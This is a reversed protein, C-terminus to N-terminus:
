QALSIGGLNATKQGLQGGAILIAADRVQGDQRVPTYLADLYLYRCHGLSRARWGQLVEDLQATARSVQSSCVQHGCLKETIAAVKRTSVGQIFMEALTM